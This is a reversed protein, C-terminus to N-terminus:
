NNTYLDRYVEIFLLKVFAALPISIIMGIIGGFQSGIIVSLVVVMPHLNVIKSVLIPFVLALDIVNALIYLMVMASVMTDPNQDALGIILAPLFGIIPGIYPLINTIGAIIGLLFAFPFDMIMLGSTITTGVILAEIFKAFIYDGFKTNFQHVLYYTKEVISNPVIKLFEFRVRRGDKIIFFLFLPILFSLELTSKLIKPLFVALTKTSQEGVEILTDVPNITVEYNFRNKVEVKLASYKVRLYSELKPLYYQIKHSEEIVSNIGTAVPYIIIFGFGFALSLSLMKKRFSVSYLSRMLPSLMLSLIYAIGFPVMVGPINILIGAIALTIIIFFIFKPSLGKIKKPVLM